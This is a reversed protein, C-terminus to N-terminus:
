EICGVFSANNFVTWPTFSGDGDGEKGDARDWIWYAVELNRDVNFLDLLTYGFKEKIKDKWIPFNIQAIGVDNSDWNVAEPNLGSECKFIAIALMADKYDGWVKIIKQETTSLDEYPTGVVVIEKIPEPAEIEEVRWPMRVQLDVIRQKVIQHGAGWDAIKKTATAVGVILLAIGTLIGVTMLNFDTGPKKKTKKIPLIEEM